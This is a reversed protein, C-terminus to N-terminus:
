KQAVVSFGVLVNMMYLLMMELNEVRCLHNEIQSYNGLYNTSLYGLDM